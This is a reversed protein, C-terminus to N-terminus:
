RGTSPLPPPFNIQKKRGVLGGGGEDEVGGDIGMLGFGREM